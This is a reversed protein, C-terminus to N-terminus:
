GARAPFLLATALSLGASVVFVLQMSWADAATGALAPGIVNGAAYFMLVVTLSVSALDPFLRDSWFAFISSQMMICAGQLAGSVGLGPWSAPVYAAALLSLMSAAFIARMLWALGIRAEFEATALGVLGGIGIVIYLAPSSLGASLGPLGGASEVYDAVFSLYVGSTLGFSAAVGYLPWARRHLLRTALHMMGPGPDDGPARLVLGLAWLNYVGAALACGAFAVWAVRWSYAMSALALALAGALVIGGTTGTSVISLARGRREAPVGREAATNFPSWCLGASTAALAVGVALWLVRDALVVTVMGIVAAMLGLVVPVRPGLRPTLVGAIMLSAFFSAFASSAIFGAMSSSLAFADRFQSLFLGFGVRAPGFAIATALAGGLAISVSRQLVPELRGVLDAKKCSIPSAQFRYLVIATIALRRWAASYSRSRAHRISPRQGVGASRWDVSLISLLCRRGM